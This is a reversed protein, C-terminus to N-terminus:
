DLAIVKSSIRRTGDFDFTRGLSTFTDVRKVLFILKFIGMKDAAISVTVSDSSAIAIARSPPM